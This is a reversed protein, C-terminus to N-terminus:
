GAQASRRTADNREFQAVMDDYRSAMESHIGAIAPDAAQQALQRSARARTLYYDQHNLQDM